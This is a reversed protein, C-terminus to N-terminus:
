GIVFCVGEQALETHPFVSRTEELFPDLQEYKSSFHGIILKRVGAKLAIDGAQLTTCHYRDAARQELDKLYTTEHYLLDVGRVIEALSPDYITDACYAYSLPPANAITVEDNPIITGKKNIYDQGNQLQEYFSAPIEYAKAREPDISRPKKKEKFLFGWCDIRHKVKFCSVEMRKTDAILGDKTLPHFHFPYCLTTASVELQMRIIPELEPPGYLHLDQIRNLMSMSTILGILGFYHDGHLHSIFIHSIKSRKIKYRALQWQTGEGCDILFAEEQNQLVQSTPNRGFAPIASNNGLITLVLL